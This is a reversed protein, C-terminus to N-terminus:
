QRHVHQMVPMQLFSGVEESQQVLYESGQDFTAARKSALELSAFPASSDAAPRKLGEWSIQADLTRLALGLRASTGAEEVNGRWAISPVLAPRDINYMVGPIRKKSGRCLVDLDVVGRWAVLPVTRDTSHM